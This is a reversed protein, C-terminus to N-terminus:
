SGLRLMAGTGVRFTEKEAPDRWEQHVPLSVQGFFLLRQSAGYVVTPHVYVGWGGTHPLALGGAESRRQSERSLGVQLSLLQDQRDVPTWAVGGGLFVNAGEETDEYRAPNRVFGYGIASMAGAEVSALGAAIPAISDHGFEHDLTGTPVEVGGVAMVFTESGSVGRTAGPLDVRYRLAVVADELGTRTVGGGRLVSFPMVLAVSLRGLPTFGGSLATTTEHTRDAPPGTGRTFVQASLYTDVTLVTASQPGFIAEHHARAVAPTLAFLLLVVGARRRVAM